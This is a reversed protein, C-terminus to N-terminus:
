APLVRQSRSSTSVDRKGNPMWGFQERQVHLTMSDNLRAIVLKLTKLHCRELEEITTGDLVIRSGVVSAIGPKHMSTWAPPHNWAEAFSASWVAPPVRNLLLPVRYLLSGATGDGRPHGIGDTDVGVLRVPADDGAPEPARSWDRSAATPPAQDLAPGKSSFGRTLHRAADRAVWRACGQVDDVDLQVWLVDALAPPMVVNGVRVPLVTVGRAGRQVQKSMALSIEKRCWNSEVSATSVLAAVFDFEAIAESIRDILSDGILLEGQDLWVRAGDAEMAKALAHALESDEHAYSIFISPRSDAMWRVYRGSGVATPRHRSLLSPNQSM